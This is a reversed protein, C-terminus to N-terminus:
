ERKEIPEAKSIHQRIAEEIEERGKRRQEKIDVVELSVAARGADCINQASTRYYKEVYDAGREGYSDFLNCLRKSAAEDWVYGKPCKMERAGFELAKSLQETSGRLVIPNGEEPGFVVCKGQPSIGLAAAALISLM